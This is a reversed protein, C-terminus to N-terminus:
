HSVGKIKEMVVDLKEKEVIWEGNAGFQGPVVYAKLQIKPLSKLLVGFNFLEQFSMDTLFVENAKNILEPMKFFTEREAVKRLAAQFFIQQRNIRGIDGMEDSRYRLFSMLEKGNMKQLGPNIEIHLDASNDHYSMKKPVDITIGGLVNVLEEAGKMSFVIVNDLNLDLLNKVSDKALKYGGLANAANIRQSPKNKIEVMTDRPISLVSLSNNSTDFSLVAIFDSRGQWDKLSKDVNTDSGLVLINWLTSKEQVKTTILEETQQSFYVALCFFAISTIFILIRGKQM